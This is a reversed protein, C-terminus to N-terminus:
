RQYKDCEQVHHFTLRQLLTNTRFHARKRHRVKSPITIPVYQNSEGMAVKHNNGSVDPLNPLLEILGM